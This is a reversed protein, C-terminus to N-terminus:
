TQESAAVHFARAADDQSHHPTAGNAAYRHSEHLAAVATGSEKMLHRAVEDSAAEHRALTHGITAEAAQRVSKVPVAVAM